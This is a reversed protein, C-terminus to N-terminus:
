EIRGFPIKTGDALTIETGLILRGARALDSAREMARRPPQPMRRQPQRGARPAYGTVTIIGGMTLADDRYGRERLRDSSDGEVAWHEENGELDTETVLLYVSHPPAPAAGGVLMGKLVVKRQIDYDQSQPTQSTLTPAASLSLVAVTIVVLRRSHASFM